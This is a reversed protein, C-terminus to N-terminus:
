WLHEWGALQTFFGYGARTQVPEANNVFLLQVLVWNNIPRVAWWWGHRALDTRLWHGWWTSEMIDCRGGGVAPPGRNGGPVAPPGRLAGLVASLIMDRLIEEPRFGINGRVGLLGPLCPPVSDKVGSTLSWQWSNVRLTSSGPQPLLMILTWNLIGVCGQLSGPAGASREVQGGQAWGGAHRGQLLEGDGGPGGVGGVEWVQQPVGGAMDLTGVAPPVYLSPVCM